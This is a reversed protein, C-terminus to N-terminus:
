FNVIFTCIVTLDATLQPLKVSLSIEQKRKFLQKSVANIHKEKLPFIVLLSAANVSPAFNRTKEYRTERILLIDLTLAVWVFFM